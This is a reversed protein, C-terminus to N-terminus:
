GDIGLDQRLKEQQEPTLVGDDTNTSTTDGTLGLEGRLEDWMQQLAQTTLSSQTEQEMKERFWPQPTDQHLGLRLVDDDFEGKENKTLEDVTRLGNFVRATSSSVEQGAITFTDESSDQEQKTQEGERIVRQNVVRGKSDLEFEVLNGDIVRTQFTNEQQKEQDRQEKLEREKRQLDSEAFKLRTSAVDVATKRNQQIRALQQELPVSEALAGRRISAAQGTIFPTAIPQDQVKAVGLGAGALISDLQDQIQQEKDSPKLSSVLLDQIAKMQNRISDLGTDTAGTPTGTATSGTTDTGSTTQPVSPQGTTTTQGGVQGTPQFQSLVGEVARRQDENNSPFASQFNRLDNTQDEINQGLPNGVRPIGPGSVGPIPTFFDPQKKRPNNAM